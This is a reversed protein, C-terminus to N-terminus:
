DSIRKRRNGEKLTTSEVSFMVINCVQECLSGACTSAALVMWWLTMPECWM